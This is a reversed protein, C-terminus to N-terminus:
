YDQALYEPGLGLEIIKRLRENEEKAAKLNIKLNSCIEIYREYSTELQKELEGIRAAQQEVKRNVKALSKLQTACTDKYNALSIRTKTLEENRKDELIDRPDRM